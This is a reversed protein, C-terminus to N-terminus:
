IWWLKKLCNYNLLLWGTLSSLTSSIPSRAFLSGYIYSSSARLLDIVYLSGRFDLYGFVYNHFKIFWYGVLLIAYTILGLIILISLPLKDNTKEYIFSGTLYDLLFNVTFFSCIFKLLYPVLIVSLLNSIFEYLPMFLINLKLLLSANFLLVM